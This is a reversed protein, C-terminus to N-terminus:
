VAERAARKAARKSQPAEVPFAIPIDGHASIHPLASDEDAPPKPTDPPDTVLDVVPEVESWSAEGCSLCTPADESAPRNCVACLKM